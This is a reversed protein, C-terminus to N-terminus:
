RFEPPIYPGHGQPDNEPRYGQEIGQILTIDTWVGEVPLKQQEPSLDGVEWSNEGDWLWWVQKGFGPLRGIGRFVPFKQAEIPIPVNAVRKFIGRNVIATAPIFTVFEHEQQALSEFDNIRSKFFGSLVRVLQGMTPHRHTVQVYALGKATPVELIDGEKIRKAM